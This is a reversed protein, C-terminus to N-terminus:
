APSVSGSWEGIAASKGIDRKTDQEYPQGARAHFHSLFDRAQSTQPAHFLQTPPGSEIIAGGEMFIVRDAAQQAFGMEHTVTIMTQGSGALAKMVDLVESVLEPDLASTPEDFLIMLPRMALARAIAVRQQQGGSLQSPRKEIHDALRVRLLEEAARERAEGRGLGLSLRPGLAVNDLASLHPFLNFRQFVFGFQRQQAARDRANRATGIESGGLRVVGSDPTELRNLCRLMTTKGSGSPGIVAVSEGPAVQFSLNHLIPRGDFSKTLGQVDLLPAFANVM